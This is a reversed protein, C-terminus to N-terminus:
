GTHLGCFPKQILRIDCHHRSFNEARIPRYPETKSRIDFIDPLPHISDLLPECFNLYYITIAPFVIVSFIKLAWQRLPTIGPSTATELISKQKPCSPVLVKIMSAKLFNSALFTKLLFLNQMTISWLEGLGFIPTDSICLFILAKALSCLNLSNSTPLPM